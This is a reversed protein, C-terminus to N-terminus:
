KRLERCLNKYKKSWYGSMCYVCAKDSFNYRRAKFHEQADERSFFPGTIQGASVHVDKRMNQSPDVIVWWPSETGECEAIKLTDSIEHLADM